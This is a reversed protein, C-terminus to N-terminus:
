AVRLPRLIRISAPIDASRLAAHFATCGRRHERDPAWACCSRQDTRGRPEPGDLGDRIDDPQQLAARGPLRLDSYAAATNEAFMYAGGGGLALEAMAQSNVGQSLGVTFIDVRPADCSAQLVAQRELTCNALGGNEACYIDEGDSFLVVARRLDAPTAPANNRVIEVMQGVAGYLPTGGAELTALQDVVSVSESWEHHIGTAPLTGADGIILDEPLLSNSGDPNDDAFAALMAQDGGSVGQLFVKSAFIRAHTPIPGRRGASRAARTWCSRRQM